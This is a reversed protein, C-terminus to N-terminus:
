SLSTLLPSAPHPAPSFLDFLSAPDLWSGPIPLDAWDQLPWQLCLPDWLGSPALSSSLNDEREARGPTTRPQGLLVNWTRRTRAGQLCPESLPNGAVMLISAAPHLSTAFTGLPPLPASVAEVAPSQAMRIVYRPCTKGTVSIPGKRGKKM